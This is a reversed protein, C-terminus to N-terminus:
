LNNAWSKRLEKSSLGGAQELDDRMLERIKSTFGHRLDPLTERYLVGWVVRNYLAISARYQKMARGSYRIDLFRLYSLIRMHYVPKLGEGSVYFKHMSLFDALRNKDAPFNKRVVDEQTDYIRNIDRTVISHIFETKIMEDTTM